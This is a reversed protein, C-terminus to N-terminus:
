KYIEEMANSYDDIDILKLKLASKFENEISEQTKTKKMEKVLEVVTRKEVKM